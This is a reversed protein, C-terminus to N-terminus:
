RSALPKTNPAASFAGLWAFRDLHTLGFNLTQGGGMSLGALARHERDAQVSYRSEIAPILGRVLRARVHWVSARCGHHQRRCPREGARSRQADRRDDADSQRRRRPQDLLVNLTAVRQWEQEDGGIGHLLYLVPYKTDQSYGSPTYVHMRRKTGVTKSDYEIMALHGRAIGDRVDRIDAPPEPFAAVDDANLV